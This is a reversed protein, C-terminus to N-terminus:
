GTRDGEVYFPSMKIKGAKSLRKNGEGTSLQNAVGHRKKTYYAVTPISRFLFPPSDPHYSILEMPTVLLVPVAEDPNQRLPPLALFPYGLLGNNAPYSRDHAVGETGIEVFDIEDPHFDSISDLRVAFLLLFFFGDRQKYIALVPEENNRSSDKRYDELYFDM